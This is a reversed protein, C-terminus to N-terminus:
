MEELDYLHAIKEPLNKYFDQALREKKIKKRFSNLSIIKISHMNELYAEKKSFSFEQQANIQKNINM